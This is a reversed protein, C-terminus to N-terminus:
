AVARVSAVQPVGRCDTSQIWEPVRWGHVLRVGHRMGAIGQMPYGQFGNYGRQNRPVPPSFKSLPNGDATETVM